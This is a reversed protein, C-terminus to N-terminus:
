LEMSLTKSADPFFRFGDLNISGKVMRAEPSYEIIYFCSVSVSCLIEFIQLETYLISLM